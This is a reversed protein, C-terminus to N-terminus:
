PYHTRYWRYTITGGVLSTNAIITAIRASGADLLGVVNASAANLVGNAFLTTTYSTITHALPTIIWTNSTLNAVRTNGGVVLNNALTVNGNLLTNNAVYLSPDGANNLGTGTIQLNAINAIGDVKLGLGTTNGANITGQSVTLDNQITASSGVGSVQFSGQVIANNAIQLGTGASNIIFSGTNKTYNNAGLDNTEALVNNTTTVWDGFTNAYSLPTIQNAM